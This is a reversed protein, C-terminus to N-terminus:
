ILWLKQMGVDNDTNNVVRSAADDKIKTADAGAHIDRHRESETHRDTLLYSEFAKVHSTWKRVDPIDQRSIPWAPIHLDDPWHWPWPLLFLYFFDRNGCHLVEIPLLNRETVCVATFNAHLMPNEVIASRITHGSDKDRSRFKVVRLYICANAPPGM